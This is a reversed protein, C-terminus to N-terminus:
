EGALGDEAIAGHDVGDGADGEEAEDDPSVVHELGAHVGGEAGGEGDGGHEDGDGRGDFDEVPEACEPAAIDFEGGRKEEGDAKDGHEHDAAEGADKHGGGGDIDVDVVGVQNDGVDM